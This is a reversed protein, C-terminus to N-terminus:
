RSLISEVEDFTYHALSASDLHYLVTSHHHRHRMKANIAKQVQRIDSMEGWEIRLTDSGQAPLQSSPVLHSFQGNPHFAVGWGYLPYACDLRKGHAELTDLWPTTLFQLYPTVDKFDLISNRTSKSQLAGTNYLMLMYRDCKPLLNIDRLQSLRVTVSLAISDQHAREYLYRTISNATYYADASGDCDLQLERFGIGQCRMMASVRDYIREALGYGGYNVHEIAERSVYVTPVIEIGDPPQQLFRLTAAPVVDTKTENPVVDFLHLYLRTIHHDKLFQLEWPTPNFTTKWHYIAREPNSSTNSGPNNCGIISLLLSFSFVLFSIKQIHSHTLIHIM